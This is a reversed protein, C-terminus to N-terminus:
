VYKYLTNSRLLKFQSRTCFDYQKLVQEFFYEEKRKLIKEPSIFSLCIFKQGAVPQDEDLLDIYKPDNKRLFSTEKSAESM